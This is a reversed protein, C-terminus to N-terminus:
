LGDCAGIVDVHAVAIQTLRIAEVSREAVCVTVTPDTSDMVTVVTEGNCDVYTFEINGLETVYLDVTECDCLCSGTILQAYGDVTPLANPSCLAISDGINLQGYNETSANGSCNEVPVEACFALVSTATATVDPSADITVTPQTSYGSGPSTIKVRSVQDTGFSVSTGSLTTGTGPELFSLTDGNVYGTGPSNIEFLTTQGDVITWDLTMGTGAGSTTSALGVVSFDGLVTGTLSMISDVGTTGSGMIALAVAGSGGGGSLVVNPTGIYGEGHLVMATRRLSTTVCTYVTRTCDPSVGTLNATFPTKNDESAELSCTPQTYGEFIIPDDCTESDVSVSIVAQCAGVACTIVTTCDYPDISGQLKWCVRYDGAIIVTFDVTLTTPILSM